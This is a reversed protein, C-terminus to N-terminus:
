NWPRWQAATCVTAWIEWNNTEFKLSIISLFGVSSSLTGTSTGLINPSSPRLIVVCSILSMCSIPSHGLSKVSTVAIAKFFFGFAVFHLRWWVILRVACGTLVTALISLHLISLFNSSTIRSSWNPNLVRFPVSSAVPTSRIDSSDQVCALFQTHKM